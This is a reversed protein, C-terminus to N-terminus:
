LRQNISQREHRFIHDKNRQLRFDASLLSGAPHVIRFGGGLDCLEKREDSWFSSNHYIIPKHKTSLVRAQSQSLLSHSHLAKLGQNKHISPSHSPFAAPLASIEREDNWSGKKKKEWGVNFYVFLMLLFLYQLSLLLLYLVIWSM